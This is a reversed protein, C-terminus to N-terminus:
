VLGSVRCLIRRTHTIKVKSFLVPGGSLCVSPGVSLSAVACRFVQQPAHNASGLFLGDRGTCKYTSVLGNEPETKQKCDLCLESHIEMIKAMLGNILLTVLQMQMMMEEVSLAEEAEMM